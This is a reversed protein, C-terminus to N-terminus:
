VIMVFKVVILHSFHGDLIHHLSEFGRSKCCSDGGMVVLGHSVGLHVMKKVCKISSKSPVYSSPMKLRGVVFHFKLQVFFLANTPRRDDNENNNKCLQVM